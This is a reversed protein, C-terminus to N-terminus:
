SRAEERVCKTHIRTLQHHDVQKVYKTILAPVDHVLQELPEWTNEEEEEHGRWQVLIDVEDDTNVSWELFTDIVFRQIDHLASLRAEEGLQYDPGALRRM